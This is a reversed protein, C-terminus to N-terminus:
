APGMKKEEPEQEPEHEHGSDNLQGAAVVRPPVKGRQEIMVLRLRQRCRQGPPCMLKGRPEVAGRDDNHESDFQSRRKQKKTRTAETQNPCGAQQNELRQNCQGTVVTEEIQESGAEAQRRNVIRRPWASFM